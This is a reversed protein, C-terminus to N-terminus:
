CCFLGPSGGLENPRPKFFPTSPIWPSKWVDIFDGKSISWCAGKEFVKKNKLLGKWIWSSQPNVGVDLFSIGNPLYKGSPAEVWLLPEKSILKWGLRALLSNHIYEMSCIGLGGLAKPQCISEWSLLSLNHKKDQPFGWWLKRLMSNIDYCFFKSLLFLSM